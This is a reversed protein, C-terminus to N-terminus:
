EGTIVKIELKKKNRLIKFISEDDEDKVDGTTIIKKGDIELLIDGPIVGAFFMPHDNLVANVKIGYNTENNQKEEATLPSGFYGFKLKKIRKVFYVAVQDFRRQTSTIPAVGFGYSVVSSTYTNTDTFTNSLVVLEAGIDKAHQIAFSDDYISGNFNSRGVEEYNNTILQWYWDPDSDWSYKLIEIEDTPLLDQDFYASATYFQTYPNPPTISCSSIVFLTLCFLFYEKM